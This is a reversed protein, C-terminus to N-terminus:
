IERKVLVFRYKRFLGNLNYNQEFCCQKQNKQLDLHMMVVLLKPSM